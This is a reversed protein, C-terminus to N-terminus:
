CWRRRCWCASRARSRSWRTRPQSGSAKPPLGRRSSAPCRRARQRRGLREDARAARRAAHGVGAAGCAQAAPHRQLHPLARRRGSASRAAPGHDRLAAAGAASRERVPQDAPGPLAGLLRSRSPARRSASRDRRPTAVAVLVVAAPLGTLIIGAGVLVLLALGVWEMLAADAQASALHRGAGPRHDRGAM